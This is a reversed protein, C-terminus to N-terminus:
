PKGGAQRALFTMAATRAMRRCQREHDADAGHMRIYHMHLLASLVEGPSPPGTDDLSARYSALAARRRTLCETMAQGDPQVGMMESNGSLGALRVTELLVTRPLPTLAVDKPQAALWRAGSSIGGTFGAAIDILSAALLADPHASGRHALGLQRLVVQTDVAFVGHAARLAPGTGYRGIEPYYTDLRLGSVLGDRRQGDAWSGLRHAARGYGEAGAVPIRLRLHPAMDRYRIFGWDPQAGDWDGWLATLHETLLVDHRDPHAYLKAYLWDSAGPLHGHARPSAQPPRRRQGPAPADRRSTLPLVIERARDDLWGHAGDAPVEWLEACPTRRLYGRLLAQHCAVDLDLRLRRDRERLYVQRPVRRRRRATNLAAVWDPWPADRAPFEAAALNWRAPALVVRGHRLRPLFPMRAAASWDFATYVTSLERSAECLFRVVPFANSRLDLAHFAM